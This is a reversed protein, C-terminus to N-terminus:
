QQKINNTEHDSDKKLRKKEAAKKSEKKRTSDPDEDQQSNRDKSQQQRIVKQADGPMVENIREVAAFSRTVGATLFILNLLIVVITKSSM